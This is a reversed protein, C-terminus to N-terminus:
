PQGGMQIRYTRNRVIYARTIGANREGTVRPLASLWADQGALGLNNALLQAKRVNGLGANYGGLAPNLRGGTRAKLWTMYFNQGQIAYHPDYASADQPVWGQTKAWAWPGPMWQALGMGGDPATIDPRFLSEAKVQAALEIWHSGGIARFEAEFPVAPWAFIGALLFALTRIV